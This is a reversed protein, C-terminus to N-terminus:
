KLIPLVFLNNKELRKQTHHYLLLNSALLSIYWGAICFLGMFNVGGLQWAKVHADAMNAMRVVM